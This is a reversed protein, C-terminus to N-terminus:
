VASEFYRRKFSVRIGDADDEEWVGPSFVENYLYAKKM